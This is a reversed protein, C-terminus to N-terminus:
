FRPNNLQVESLDRILLQRTTNYQSAIGIFTGSGEAVKVNAFNAFGSTRVIVINGSGDQLTRNVTQQNAADAYTKDLDAALFQVNEIMILKSQLATPFDSALLDSITVLIPEKHKGTEQVVLKKVDVNDIQFLSNFYQLTTGKLSIRLSDGERVRSSATLRLLVASTEDQVVLNKYLNGTSEDMTVVAFLVRDETFTHTSGPPCLERLGGITIFTSEDLSKVPPTDFDNTDCGFTFAVAIFAMLLGKYKNLNRM